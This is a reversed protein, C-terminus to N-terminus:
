KTILSQRRPWKLHSWYLPMHNIEMQQYCSIVWIQTKYCLPLQLLDNEYEEDNTYQIRLVQEHLTRARKLLVGLRLALGQSSSSQLEKELGELWPKLSIYHVTSACTVFFSYSSKIDPTFTPWEKETVNQPELTDLAEFLVLEPQSRLGLRLKSM